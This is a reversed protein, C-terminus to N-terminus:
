HPCKLTQEGINFELDSGCSECPFVRGTGGDFTQGVDDTRVERWVIDLPDDVDRKRLEEPMAASFHRKDPENTM